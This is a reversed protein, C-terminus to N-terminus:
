DTTLPPRPNVDLFFFFYSYVWTFHSHRFFPAALSIRFPLSAFLLKFEIPASQGLPRSDMLEILILRSQNLTYSPISECKLSAPVSTSELQNINTSQGPLRIWELQLEGPSFDFISSRGFFICIGSGYLYFQVYKNWFSITFFGCCRFVWVPVTTEIFHM